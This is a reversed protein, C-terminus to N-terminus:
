HSESSGSARDRTQKDLMERMQQLVPHGSMYKQGYAINFEYDFDAANAGQNHQLITELKDLGRAIQAEKSVPGHYDDWLELMEDRVKDPLLSILSLFDEREKGDKNQNEPDIAPIDGSVAEGLDHIICLKLLRETDIPAFADALVVAWLCLRWSHEATSEPREQSTHSTRLTDKLAEARKLFAFVAELNKYTEGM